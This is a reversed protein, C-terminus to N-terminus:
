FVRYIVSYGVRTNKFGRERREKVSVCLRESERERETYRERDEIYVHPLM